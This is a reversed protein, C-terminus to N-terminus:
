LLHGPTFPPSISILWEIILGLRNRTEVFTQEAVLSSQISRREGEDLRSFETKELPQNSM